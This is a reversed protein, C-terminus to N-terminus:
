ADGWKKKLVVGKSHLASVATSVSNDYTPTDKQETTQQVKTYTQLGLQAILGHTINALKQFFFVYM